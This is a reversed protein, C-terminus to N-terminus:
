LFYGKYPTNNSQNGHLLGHVFNSFWHYSPPVIFYIKVCAHFVSSSAPTLNHCNGIFPPAAM